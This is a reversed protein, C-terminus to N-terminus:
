SWFSFAAVRAWGLSVEGFPEPDAPTQGRAVEKWGRQSGAHPHPCLPRRPLRM